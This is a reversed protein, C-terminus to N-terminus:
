DRRLSDKVAIPNPYNFVVIYSSVIFTIIATAQILMSGQESLLGQQVALFAVLLSFESIQGLRFGVDWALKPQESFNGLLYRFTIPKIILISTALLLAAIWVNGLMGLNFGAGLTFFFMVLFFDRLPKLSLAIFQAIPSTALTIGAIFAGIEHSLGLLTAAEAAALCWGIALIFLYEQFRDFKQILPLLVYKVLVFCGIILAPLTLLPQLVAELSGGKAVGLFILTFIAIMDQILLLGVMLEGMHRHHLVTTPLLKLGIITSSFMMALGVVISDWTSYDLSQTIGFGIAFFVSSSVVAILTTKRLTSLLASPQMDLGLLFLLFLIGVNAMDQLNLPDEIWGTGHPGAIAGLAIYAIIVPQRTVLAVTSLVLAGAFILFFSFVIENHM